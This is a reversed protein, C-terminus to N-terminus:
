LASLANSFDVRLVTSLYKKKCCKTRNEEIIVKELIM